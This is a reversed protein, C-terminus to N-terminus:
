SAPEQLAFARCPSGDIPGLKLPMAFFLVRQRTLLNLNCLYEIQVIGRGLLVDHCPMEHLTVKRKSLERIPYDQPFDYGVAKVGRSALWEAGSREVFPSRDWFDRERWSIRLGLDTRLLAIDGAALEQGREELDLASIAASDGKDTLDVVVADGWWLDSSLQDLTKGGAIMHAPPDVHTFAHTGLTVRSSNSLNGESISSVTEFHPRFRWHEVIPLSLDVLRLEDM